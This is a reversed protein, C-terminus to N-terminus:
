EGGEFAENMVAITASEERVITKKFWPRKGKGNKRGYELINGIKALPEGSKPDKGVLEIRSHYGNAADYQVPKAKISDRVHGEVHRVEKQLKEVM